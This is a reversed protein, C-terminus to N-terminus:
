AYRRRAFIKCFRKRGGFEQVLEAVKEETNKGFVLKTPTFYKFDFM